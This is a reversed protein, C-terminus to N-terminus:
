RVLWNNYNRITPHQKIIDDIQKIFVPYNCQTYMPEVMKIHIRQLTKNNKLAELFIDNYKNDELKFSCKLVKNAIRNGGNGVSSLSPKQNNLLLAVDYPSNFYLLKLHPVKVLKLLDEDSLATISLKYLKESTVECLSNFVYNITLREISSQQLLYGILDKNSLQLPCDFSKLLPKYNILYQHLKTQFSSSLKFISPKFNFALHELSTLKVLGDFLISNSRDSLLFGFYDNSHTDTIELSTLQRFQESFLYETFTILSDNGSLDSIDMSVKVKLRKLQPSLLNLSEYDPPYAPNVTIEFYELTNMARNALVQYDGCFYGCSLSRISPAIKLVSNISATDFSQFGKCNVQKINNFIACRNLNDSSLSTSTTQQQLYINIFEELDKTNKFRCTTNLSCIVKHFYWDVMCLSRAYRKNKKNDYWLYEILIRYIRNEFITM